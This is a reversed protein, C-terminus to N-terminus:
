MVLIDKMGNFVILFDIDRFGIPWDGRTKSHRMLSIPRILKKEFSPGLNYLRINVWLAGIMVAASLLIKQVDKGIKSFLLTHFDKLIEHFIM